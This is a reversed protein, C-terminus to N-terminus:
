NDISVGQEELILQRGKYVQLVNSTNVFYRYKGNSFEYGLFTYSKPNNVTKGTLRISKGTKSDKGIYTVRNCIVNGEACQRTIKIEFNKTKLTEAGAVTAYAVVEALPFLIFYFIFKNINLM